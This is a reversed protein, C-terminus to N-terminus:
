LTIVLEPPSYNLAVEDDGLIIGNKYKEFIEGLGHMGFKYLESARLAGM